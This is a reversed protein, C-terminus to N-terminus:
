NFATSTTTLIFEDFIKSVLELPINYLSMDAVLFGATVMEYYGGQLYYGLVIIWAGSTAIM